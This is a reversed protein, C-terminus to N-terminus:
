LHRGGVPLISFHWQWKMPPRIVGCFSLLLTRSTFSKSLKYVLIENPLSKQKQQCISIANQLLPLMASLSDDGMFPLFSDLTNLLSVCNPLAFPSTVGFRVDATRDSDENLVASLDLKNVKNCQECYLPWTRFIIKEVKQWLKWPLLALALDNSTGESIVNQESFYSFIWLM